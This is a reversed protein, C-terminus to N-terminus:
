NNFFQRRMKRYEVQLADSQVHLEESLDYPVIKRDGSRVLKSRNQTITTM